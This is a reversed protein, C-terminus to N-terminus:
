GAQDGTARRHDHGDEEAIAYQNPRSSGGLTKM